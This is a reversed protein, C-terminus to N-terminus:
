AGDRPREDPVLTYRAGLRQRIEAATVLRDRRWAHDADLPMQEIFRLEHGRELAWALLDAADVDVDPVLVANIKVPRIGAVVAADIGALVRHLLPRRAIRQFADKDLADLSVNIRDLGARRLARARHELGIGNTTLAIDPRPRLAATRAVIDVLDPRLLPEGGTFRLSRVGLERVAVGVLRVIEDATLLDDAPAFPLGDAPMCYTCRLNCRDTLSVRLDDAIRGFRDILTPVEPRRAHDPVHRVGPM